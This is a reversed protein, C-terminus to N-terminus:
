MVELRELEKLYRERFTNSDSFTGALVVKDENNLLFVHYRQNEPLHPNLREFSGDVDYFVTRFFRMNSLIANTREIESTHLIFLVGFNNRHENELMFLYFPVLTRLVCEHCEEQKIYVVMRYARNLLTTDASRESDNNYAVLYDPIVVKSDKFM